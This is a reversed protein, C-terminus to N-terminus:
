LLLTLGVVLGASSLDLGGRGFDAASRLRGEVSLYVDRIVPGGLSPGGFTLDPMPIRLQFGGAVHVAGKVGWWVGDEGEPADWNEIVAVVGLGARLIPVFFQEEVLAMRLRGEAAVPIQWLNTTPMPKAPAFGEGIRKSFGAVM